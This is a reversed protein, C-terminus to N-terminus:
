RGSTGTSATSLAHSGRLTGPLTSFAIKVQDAGRGMAWAWTASVVSRGASPANLFGSTSAAMGPNARRCPIGQGLPHDPVTAAGRGHHEVHEPCAIRREFGGPGAGFVM